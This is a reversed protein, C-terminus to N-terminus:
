PVSGIFLSAVPLVPLSSEDIVEDEIMELQVPSINVRRETNCSNIKTMRASDKTTPLRHKRSLWPHLLRRRRHRRFPLLPRPRLFRDKCTCRNHCTNRWLGRDPLEREGYASRPCWVKNTHNTDSSSRGNRTVREVDFSACALVNNETCFMHCTSWVNMLMISVSILESQCLAKNMHENHCLSGGSIRYSFVCRCEYPYSMHNRRDLVRRSRRSVTSSSSSSPVLHLSSTIFMVILWIDARREQPLIVIAM